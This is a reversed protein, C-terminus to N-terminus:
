SLGCKAPMELSELAVIQLQRVTQSAVCHKIAGKAFVPRGGDMLGGIHDPHGHTIVVVDVDEPTYGAHRMREVLLGEPLRDRLPEHERQLAGNGTDFLVLEQGTNVLNPIFPHEYRNSDIRNVRALARVETALAEGGYSPSLGERIIKSDMTAIEFRGLGFRNIASQMEGQMTASM